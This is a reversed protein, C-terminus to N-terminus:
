AEAGATGGAVQDIVQLLVDPEQAGPV